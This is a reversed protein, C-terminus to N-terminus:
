TEMDGLESFAIIYESGLEDEALEIRAPQMKDFLNKAIREDEAIDSASSDWEEEDTSDRPTSSVPMPMLCVLDKRIVNSFVYFHWAAIWMLSVGNGLMGRLHNIPLDGINFTRTDRLIEPVHRTSPWGQSMGLENATFLYDTAIGRQRVMMMESSKMMTPM